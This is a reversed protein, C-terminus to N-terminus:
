RLSDQAMKLIWRQPLCDVAFDPRSQPLVCFLASKRRGTSTKPSSAQFAAEIHLHAPCAALAFRYTGSAYFADERLSTTGFSAHGVVKRAAEIDSAGSHFGNSGQLPRASTVPAFSNREARENLPYSEYRARRHM